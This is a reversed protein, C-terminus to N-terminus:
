AVNILNPEVNWIGNVGADVKISKANIKIVTGEVVRNKRGKFWVPTGVSLKRRLNFEKRNKLMAIAVDIDGPVRMIEELTLLEIAKM